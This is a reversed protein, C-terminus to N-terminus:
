KNNKWEPHRKYFGKVDEGLSGCKPCKCEYLDKYCIFAHECCPCILEKEKSLAQYIFMGFLVVVFIVLSHPLSEKLESWPHPNYHIGGALDGGFKRVFIDVSLYLSAAFLPIFYRNFRNM